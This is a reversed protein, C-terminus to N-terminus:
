SVSQSVPSGVLWGGGGVGWSVIAFFIGEKPSLFLSLLSSLNLELLALYDSLVSSSVFFFFFFVLMSSVASEM